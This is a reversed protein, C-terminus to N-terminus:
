YALTELVDLLHSTTTLFDTMYADNVETTSSVLTLPLLFIKGSVFLFSLSLHKVLNNDTNMNFVCLLVPSM